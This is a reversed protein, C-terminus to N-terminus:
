TREDEIGVKEPPEKEKEKEKKRKKKKEKKRKKKEKKRKRKRKELKKELKKEKRINNNREKFYYIIETHSCQCIKRFIWQCKTGHVVKWFM